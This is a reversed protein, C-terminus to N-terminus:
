KFKVQQYDSICNYPDSVKATRYKLNELTFKEPFM